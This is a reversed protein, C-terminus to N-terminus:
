VAVGAKLGEFVAEEATRPTLADGIVHVEGSWDVVAEELDNVREHGQSLVLTDVGDVIIPEGSASHQFYVTEGDAGFLRAYPIVEISARHLEGAANDRVYWPIFEGAHLGQVALRVHCGDKALKLAIGIGIWDPRWDAIVVRQGVNAEGKLVQWADVVHADDQGTFNPWRPKAGTAIILADPGERDILRRDVTVGREIRVGALECERQLNTALGGFEARAPLLQALLVQGGLQRGAEFVTVSHGRAAAVAAAKLGAPGGGAVLIRRAKSAVPKTGFQLERGTEPHQICSIAYGKHFHGICAQNCAICARIDDSRGGRAKNAMEPDAIMSRTMGCADAEGNAIVTEAIQPQNIRGAVFVPIDVTRKMAAAFPAVYATGVAM